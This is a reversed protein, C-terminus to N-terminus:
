RCLPTQLEQLELTRWLRRWRATFRQSVVKEPSDEAGSRSARMPVHAHAYRLNRTRITYVCASICAVHLEFRYNQRRCDEAYGRSSFPFYPKQYTRSGEGTTHLM